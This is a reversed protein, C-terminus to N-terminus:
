RGDTKTPKNRNEDRLATNVAIRLESLAPSFSGGRMLIEEVMAHEICRKAENLWDVDTFKREDRM